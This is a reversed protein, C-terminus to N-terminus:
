ERFVVANLQFMPLPLLHDGEIHSNTFLGPGQNAQVRDTPRNIAIFTSYSNNFDAFWKVVIHVGYLVHQPFNFHFQSLSILLVISLTTRTVTTSTCWPVFYLVVVTSHLPVEQPM